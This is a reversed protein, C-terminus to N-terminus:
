VFVPMPQEQNEQMRNKLEEVQKDIIQDDIVDERQVLSGLDLLTIDMTDGNFRCGFHRWRLDSQAYVLKKKGVHQLLTKISPLARERDAVRIPSFYPMTIAPLGNLTICRCYTIYRPGLEKWRECEKKAIERLNDITKAYEEERQKGVFSKPESPLFLKAAFLKGTPSSCLITKGSGGQGVQCIVHYKGMRSLSPAKCYTVKDIKVKKYEYGSECLTCFKRDEPLPDGEKPLLPKNAAMSKTFSSWSCELALKVVKYLYKLGFPQSYVVSRGNYDYISGSPDACNDDVDSCISGNEDDVGQNSTATSSIPELPLCFNDKSPSFKPKRGDQPGRSASNKNTNKKFGEEMIEQYKDSDNDLWVIASNNYTTLLAFPWDMGQQKLANLYDLVQGAVTEAKFVDESSKDDSPNKVEVVFFLRGNLLVVILDPRLSFLSAEKVVSVENFGCCELLDKIVLCIYDQPSTENHHELTNNKRPARSAELALQSKILTGDESTMNITVGELRYIAIQKQNIQAPEHFAYKKPPEIKKRKKSTTSKQLKEKYNSLDQRYQTVKQQANPNDEMSPICCKNYNMRPIRNEKLMKMVSGGEEALSIKEERLASLNKFIALQTEQTQLSDAEESLTELKKTAENCLILCNQLETLSMGQYKYPMGKLESMRTSLELQSALVNESDLLQKVLTWSSLPSDQILSKKKVETPSEAAEHVVSAREEEEATRTRKVSNMKAENGTPPRKTGSTTNQHVM